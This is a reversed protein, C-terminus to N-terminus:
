LDELIELLLQVDAFSHEYSNLQCLQLENAYYKSSINLNKIKRELFIFHFDKFYKEFLKKSNLLQGYKKLNESEFIHNSAFFSPNYSCIINALLENPKLNEQQEYYEQLKSVNLKKVNAIM